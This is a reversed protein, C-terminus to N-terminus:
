NPWTLLLSISGPLMRRSLLRSDPVNEQCPPEIDCHQRAEREALLWDDLAHGTEGGRSEFIQYARARIFELPLHDGHGGTDHTYNM